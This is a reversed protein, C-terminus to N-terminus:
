TVDETPAPPLLAALARLQGVTPSEEDATPVGYPSTTTACHVDDDDGGLGSNVWSQIPRCAEELALVRATLEVALRELNERKWTRFDTGAPTVPPVALGALRDAAATLRESRALASDASIFQGRVQYVTSDHMAVAADERLWTVMADDAAPTPRAARECLRLITAPDCAATLEANAKGQEFKTIPSNFARVDAIHQDGAMISWHTGHDDTLYPGPTAKRALEALRTVDDDVM